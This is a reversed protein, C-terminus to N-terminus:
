SFITQLQKRFAEIDDENPHHFAEEFNQLSVRLNQDEPNSKILTEYRTKIALPMKGQCYYHGIVENTDNLYQKTREYIKDFYDVSGGYGCTGFLFVKRHNLQELFLKTKKSCLGKDTWSGVFVIDADELHDVIKDAYETEIVEALRKTNGTLSDCMIYIKM